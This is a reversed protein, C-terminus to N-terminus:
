LALPHLKSSYGLDILQSQLVQIRSNAADIQSEVQKKLLEKGEKLKGTELVKETLKFL